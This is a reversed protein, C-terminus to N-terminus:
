SGQLGHFAGSASERRDREEATEDVLSAADGGKGPGMPAGAGEDPLDIVPAPGHARAPALAQRGQGLLEPGVM